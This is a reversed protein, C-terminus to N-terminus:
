FLPHESHSRLGDRLLLTSLSASSASSLHSSSFLYPGSFYHKKWLCGHTENAVVSSSLMLLTTLGNIMLISASISSLGFSSLLIDVGARELTQPTYYLVGNISSFQQLM